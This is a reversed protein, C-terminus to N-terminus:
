RVVNGILFQIELAVIDWDLIKTTGSACYGNSINLGSTFNDGSFYIAGVGTMGLKGTSCGIFGVDLQYIPNIVGIGVRNGTINVTQQNAATGLSVQGDNTGDLTLFGMTGSTSNVTLQTYYNFPVTIPSGSNYITELIVNNYSSYYSTVGGNTRAILPLGSMMLISAYGSPIQFNSYNGTNHFARVDLVGSINQTTGTFTNSTGLQAYNGTLLFGTQAATVVPSGSISLNSVLWNGSLVRNGWDVTIANASESSLTQSNWNLVAYNDVNYAIRNHWDVSIISPVNLDSLFCSGWAATIYGFSGQCLNRNNWDVSLYNSSDTLTGGSSIHAGNTFNFASAGTINIQGSFNTIGTFINTQTFKNTGSLLAFGAGFSGSTGTSVYNLGVWTEVQAIANNIAGTVVTANAFQGTVGTGIFGSPNGTLPYFVGTYIGTVGPLYVGIVNLIYGSLEPNNIQKLRVTSDFAM